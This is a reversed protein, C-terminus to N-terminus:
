MTGTTAGRTSANTRSDRRESTGAITGGPMRRRILDDAGVQQKTIAAM